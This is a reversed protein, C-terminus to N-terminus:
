KILQKIKNNKAVKITKRWYLEPLLILFRILSLLLRSRSNCTLDLSWFSSVSMMKESLANLSITALLSAWCIWSKSRPMLPIWCSYASISLKIFGAYSLSNLVWSSKKNWSFISLLLWALLRSKLWPFSEASSNMRVRRPLFILSLMMWVIVSSFSFRWCASLLIELETFTFPPLALLQPITRAKIAQKAEMMANQYRM